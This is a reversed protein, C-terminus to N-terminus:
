KKRVLFNGIACYDLGTKLYVSLADEPTEVIPGQSNFSTNLLLPVKTLRYFEEILEYFIGNDKKTVTQVRATNDKHLVAPIEQKKEPKVDFTFLMFPSKMDPKFYDSMKDSLCTPAFPRFWERHKIKENIMKIMGKRRPDALISRHGLARPGLESRGQFWGVTKGESILKAATKVISRKKKFFFDRRPINKEISKRKKELASRIEKETYSRGFYDNTLKKGPLYGKLKYFGYLANGVAQGRDSAAPFIFIDDLIGSQILKGNVCCNLAVGGAFCLKRKGTKKVLRDVLSLVIKETERQVYAAAKRSNLTNGRQYPEGFGLAYKKSFEMVGREYEHDLMGEVQIGNLSFLPTNISSCDGYSSLAMTKGAEQNIWGLFNTFSDYTKGIGKAPNRKSSNGGIKRIEQGEAVYYSEASNNNGRADIVLVLADNFPSLFYAAFAHSLHHDITIFKKSPIGLSELEGRYHPPLKKGYSSFVVLSVDEIKLNLANLCYFFSNIYGPSYKKRTLREESIACKVIGDISVAAGGDHGVNLGVVVTRKKM